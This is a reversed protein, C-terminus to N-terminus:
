QIKLSSNDFVIEWGNGEPLRNVSVVKDQNKLADISTVLGTLSSNLQAVITELATVRGEIQDIRENIEKDDYDDCAVVAFPLLILISYIFRYVTKM